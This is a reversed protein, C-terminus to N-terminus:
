LFESAGSQASFVGSDVSVSLKQFVFQFYRASFVKFILLLWFEYRISWLVCTFESMKLTLPLFASSHKVAQFCLLCQMFGNTEIYISFRSFTYMSWTVSVVLRLILPLFYVPSLWAFTCFYILHAWKKKLATNCWNFRVWRNECNLVKDFFM